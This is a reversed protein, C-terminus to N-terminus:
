RPHRGRGAIRPFSFFFEMWLALRDAAGPSKGALTAFLEFPDGRGHHHDFPIRHIRRGFFPRGGPLPIQKALRLQSPPTPCIADRSLITFPWSAQGRHNKGLRSQTLGAKQRYERVGTIIKGEIIAM